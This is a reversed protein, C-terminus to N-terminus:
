GLIWFFLVNVRLESVGTTKSTRLSYFDMKESYGERKAPLSYYGARGMSDFYRVHPSAKPIRVRSSAISKNRISNFGSPWDGTM